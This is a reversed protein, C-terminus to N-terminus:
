GAPAGLPTFAGPRTQLAWGREVLRKQGARAVADHVVYSFFPQARVIEHDVDWDIRQIGRRQDEEKQIDYGGDGGIWSCTVVASRDIMAAAIARWRERPALGAVIAAANAAQSAALRREGDVYLGRRPDWFNESSAAVGAHRERAWAASGANGVWDCLDAYEALGCAWLASVISTRGTTFVSSWDVLNWEPLDSLTGHEDLHPEYWRLMREVTPLCPALRTRDGTYRYLNHVGHVWHLSWDPITFGGFQEFDGAM